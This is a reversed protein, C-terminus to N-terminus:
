DILCMAGLYCLDGGDCNIVRVWNICQSILAISDTDMEIKKTIQRQIDLQSGAKCFLFQSTTNIGSVLM